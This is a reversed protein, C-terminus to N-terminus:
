NNQIYGSADGTWNSPIGLYPAPDLTNGNLTLKIHCHPGTSQGTSGSLAIVTGASVMSGSSAVISSNHMYTTQYGGAHNIVVYNGMSPSYGTASVVGDMVAVIPTGTPCSIDTGYHYTGGLLNRPGYNSTVIYNGRTVPWMFIGGSSLIVSQIDYAASSESMEEIHGFMEINGSAKTIGIEQVTSSNDYNGMVVYVTDGQIRTVIGTKEYGDVKMFAIDGQSAQRFSYNYWGSKMIQQKLDVASSTKTFYGKQLYGEKDMCYMLFATSWDGESVPYWSMYTDSDTGIQGFACGALENVAMLEGCLSCSLYYKSVGAEKIDSSDVDDATKLSFDHEESVDLLKAYTLNDVTTELWIRCNTLDVDSLKESAEIDEVTVVTDETIQRTYSWAGDNEQVCLFLDSADGKESKVVKIGGTDGTATSKIKGSIDSDFRLTLMEESEAPSEDVTATVTSAFLVSSIDINAAPQVANSYNIYDFIVSSGPIALLAINSINEYPSRLWFTKGGSWYLSAIAVDDNGGAWLKESENYEGKLAYLKDTVTYEVANKTDNVSVTTANMLKQESASFYNKDAAISNLAERLSSAGYHNSYVEVSGATDGYGTGAEYAYEKESRKKNFLQGTLIPNAAFIIINDGSVNNDKGAIYWGQREGKDNTGFVLVGVTDQEGDLDFATLLEEKTAFSTNSTTNSAQVRGGFTGQLIALTMVISLIVATMKVKMLSGRGM